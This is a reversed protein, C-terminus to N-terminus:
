GRIWVRNDHFAAGGVPAVPDAGTLFNVGKGGIFATNPWISEIIVVGRLLGDFYQSHIRITGRQSGVSVIEGDRIDLEAADM